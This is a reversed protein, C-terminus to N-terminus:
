LACLSHRYQILVQCSVSWGVSRGVLWGCVVMREPQLVLKAMPSLSYNLYSGTAMLQYVWDQAANFLDNKPSSLSDQIRQKVGSDINVEKDATPSIFTNWIANARICM